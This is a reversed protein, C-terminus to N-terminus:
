FFHSNKRDYLRLFRNHVCCKAQIVRLYKVEHHLQGDARLQPQPLRQRPVGGLLLQAMEEIHELGVLNRFVIDQCLHFGYSLLAVCLSM